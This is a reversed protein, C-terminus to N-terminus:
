NKRVSYKSGLFKDLREAAIEESGNFNVLTNPTEEIEARHDTIIVGDISCKGENIKDRAHSPSSTFKMDLVLDLLKM